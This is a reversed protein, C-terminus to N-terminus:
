KRLFESLLKKDESCFLNFFDSVCKQLRFVASSLLILIFTHVFAGHVKKSKFSLIEEFKRGSFNVKGVLKSFPM